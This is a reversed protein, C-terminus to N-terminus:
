CLQSLLVYITTVTDVVTDIMIVQTNDITYCASTLLIFVSADLIM